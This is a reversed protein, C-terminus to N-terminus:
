IFAAIGGAKQVEAIIHLAVTTKGGSEPGFIEIIRGRPVGGVGLALDLSLIGSSVTEVQMRGSAEGLRMISGKGFQREIGALAAELANSKKQDM